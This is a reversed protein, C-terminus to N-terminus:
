KLVVIQEVKHFPTASLRVFYKGSSLDSAGITYRHSGASVLGRAVVSVRQGLVNYVSIDAFRDVPLSLAIRIEGNVPSPYVSFVFNDPLPKSPNATELFSTDPYWPAFRINDEVEDGLGSPNLFPHYPGTSDGWYNWRADASDPAFPDDSIALGNDVFVNDYITQYRAGPGTRIVSNAPPGNGIFYNHHVECRGAVELIKAASGDGSGLSCFAFVNHELILTFSSDPPNIQSDLRIRIPATSYRRLYNDSFHNNRIVVPSGELYLIDIFADTLGIDAITNNEIEQDGSTRLTVMPYTCSGPGFTCREIIGGTGFMGIWSYATGSFQCEDIEVNDRGGLGGETDGNVRCRLATFTGNSFVAGKTNHFECDIISVVNPIDYNPPYIGCFVSDFVCRNIILPLSSQLAIGGPQFYNSRPYMAAGNILKFDELILGCNEPITICSATRPTATRSPDITPLHRIASDTVMNGILAFSIPPAQLAEVYTGTDVFVTDDDGVANLAAQITPYISPVPLVRASVTQKKCCFAAFAFVVFCASLATRRM